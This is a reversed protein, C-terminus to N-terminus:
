MILALRRLSFPRKRLASSAVHIVSSSGAIYAFTAASNFSSPYAIRESKLRSGAVLTSNSNSFSKGEPPVSPGLFEWSPVLVPFDTDPFGMDPFVM